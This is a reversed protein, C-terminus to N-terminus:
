NRDLWRQLPDKLKGKLFFREIDALRESLFKQCNCESREAPRVLHRVYNDDSFLYNGNGIFCPTLSSVSDISCAIHIRGHRNSDNWRFRPSYQLRTLIGIVDIAAAHPADAWRSASRGTGYWCFENVITGDLPSKLVKFMDHSFVSDRPSKKLFANDVFVRCGKGLKELGV